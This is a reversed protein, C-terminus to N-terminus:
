PRRRHGRYRATRRPSRISAIACRKPDVGLAQAAIIRRFPKSRCRTVVSSVGTLVSPLAVLWNCNWRPPPAPRWAIRGDLARHSARVADLAGPIELLDRDLATIAASAFEGFQDPGWCRWYASRDDAARGQRGQGHHAHNRRCTIDWGLENLMQALVHSTIPESDLWCATM